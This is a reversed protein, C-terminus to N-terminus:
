GASPSCRSRTALTPPLNATVRIEIGDLRRAKFVHKMDASTVASAAVFVCNARTSRVLGRLRDIPGLAPLGPQTAGNSSATTVFGVPRFGVHSSGLLEALHEAEQNTGVILTDFTLKGEAWFRRIQRHWVRSSVVAFLLALLSYLVWLRSSPVESWFSLMVVTTITLTVAIIMHRFEELTSFQPTQYLGFGHYLTVTALAAVLLV